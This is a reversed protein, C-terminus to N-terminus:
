VLLAAQSYQKFGRAEQFGGTKMGKEEKLNVLTLPTHLNHIKSRCKFSSLVIDILSNKHSVALIHPSLPHFKM